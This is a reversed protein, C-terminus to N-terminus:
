DLMMVGPGKSWHRAPSKAASYLICVGHLGDEHLGDEVPSAQLQRCSDQHAMEKKREKKTLPLQEKRCSDTGDSSDSLSARCRQVRRGGGM